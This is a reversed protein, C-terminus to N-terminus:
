SSAPDKRTSAARKSFATRCPPMTDASFATSSGPPTRPHGPKCCPVSTTSSMKIRRRRRSFRRRATPNRAHKAMGAVIMPVAAAIATQALGPNVGLQQSIQNIESQGLHGQIADLLGM